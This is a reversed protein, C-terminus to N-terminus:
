PAPRLTDFMQLFVAPRDQSVTSLIVGDTASATIKQFTAQYSSAATDHCIDATQGHSNTLASCDQGAPAPADKAAQLLITSGQPSTFTVGSGSEAASWDAPYDLAVGLAASTYTQWGAAPAGPGSEVPAKPPAVTIKLPQALPSDGQPSTNQSPSDQAGATNTPGAAPMATTITEAPSAAQSVNKGDPPASCAALLATCFLMCLLIRTNVKM